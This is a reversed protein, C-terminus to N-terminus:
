VATYLELQRKVLQRSRQPISFNATLRYSHATRTLPTRPFSNQVQQLPPRAHSRDSQLTILSYLTDTQHELINILRETAEKHFANNEKQDQNEGEKWKTMTERWNNKDHTEAQSHLIVERFM